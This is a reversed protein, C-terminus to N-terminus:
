GLIPKSYNTRFVEKDGMKFELKKLEPYSKVPTFLSNDIKYDEEYVDKMSVDKMSVDEMSEDEMSEDTYDDIFENSIERLINIDYLDEKYRMAYRDYRPGAALQDMQKGSGQVVVEEISFLTKWINWSYDIMNIISRKFMDNVGEANLKEVYDKIANESNLYHRFFICFENFRRLNESPIKNIIDEETLTKLDIMIKHEGTIGRSIDMDLLVLEKYIDIDSLEISGGKQEIIGKLKDPAEKYLDKLPKIWQIPGYSLTNHFVVNLMTKTSLYSFGKLDKYKLLTRYITDVKKSINQFQDLAAQEPKISPKNRVRYKKTSIPTPRPLSRKSISRVRSKPISKVRRSNRSFFLTGLLKKINDSSARPPKVVLKDPKFDIMLFPWSSKIANCAPHIWAYIQPWIDEQFSEYEEYFTDYNSKVNSKNKLSNIIKASETKYVRGPFGCLMAITSVTLFHDCQYGGPKKILSGGSEKITEGCICCKTQGIRLHLDSGSKAFKLVELCQQQPKLVEFSGRKDKSPQGQHGIDKSGYYFVLDNGKWDLDRWETPDDM